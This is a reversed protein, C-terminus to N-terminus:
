LHCSKKLFFNKLSAFQTKIKEAVETQFM